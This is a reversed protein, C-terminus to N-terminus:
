ILYLVLGLATVQFAELCSAPVNWSVIGLVGMFDVYRVIALLPLFFIWVLLAWYLHLWSQLAVCTEARCNCIRPSREFSVVAPWTIGACSQCLESARAGYCIFVRPTRGFCLHRQACYMAEVTSKNMLRASLSNKHWHLSTIWDPPIVLIYKCSYECSGGWPKWDTEQLYSKEWETICFCVLLLCSEEDKCRCHYLM